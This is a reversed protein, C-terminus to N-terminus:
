GVNKDGPGASSGWTNTGSSVDPTVVLTDAEEYESAATWQTM